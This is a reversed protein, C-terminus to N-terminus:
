KRLKKTYKISDNDIDYKNVKNNSNYKEFTQRNNNNKGSVLKDFLKTTKLM